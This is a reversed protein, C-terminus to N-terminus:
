DSTNSLSHKLELFYPQIIRWYFSAGIIYCCVDIIDATYRSNKAPLYCEFYCAYFLTMWSIMPVTLNISYDRKISRTALLSLTLIIPLCLLDTLYSNVVEPLYFLGMRSLHVSLYTLLAVSFFPQKIIHKIM